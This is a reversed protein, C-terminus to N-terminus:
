LPRCGRCRNSRPFGPPSGSPELPEGLAAGHPMDEGHSVAAERQESFMTPGEDGVVAELSFGPLKDGVTLM